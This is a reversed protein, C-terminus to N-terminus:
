LAGQEQQLRSQRALAHTMTTAPNAPPPTPRPSLEPWSGPLAPEPAHQTRRQPAPEAHKTPENPRLAPRVLPSHPTPPTPATFPSGPISPTRLVAPTSPPTATSSPNSTRPPNPTSPPRRTRLTLRPKEQSARLADGPSPIARLDPRVVPSPDAPAVQPALEARKAQENPRLGPRVVWSKAPGQPSPPTVSSRLTLRPEAQPAQTARFTPENAPLDPRAVPPDPPTERRAAARLGPVPTRQPAQKARWPHALARLTPRVVPSAGLAQSPLAQPAVDQPAQKAGWLRRIARLAPRVLPLPEVPTPAVRPALGADRLLAVWHEPAGDLNFGGTATTSDELAGRVSAAGPGAPEVWAAARRLRGALARRFSPFSPSPLAPM